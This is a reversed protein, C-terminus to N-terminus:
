TGRDMRVTEGRDVARVAVSCPPSRRVVIALWIMESGVLVGTLATEEPVNVRQTVYTLITVTYIYFFVNEALRAGM